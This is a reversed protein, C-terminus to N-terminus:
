RSFFQQQSVPFRRSTLDKLEVLGRILALYREAQCKYVNKECFISLLHNVYINKRNIEGHWVLFEAMKGVFRVTTDM